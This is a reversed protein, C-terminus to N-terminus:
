LLMETMEPCSLTVLETNSFAMCFGYSNMRLHMCTIQFNQSSRSLYVCMLCFFFKNLSTSVCSCRPITVENSSIFLGLLVSVGM